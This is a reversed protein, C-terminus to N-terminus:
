NTGPSVLEGKNNVCTALGDYGYSDLEECTPIVIRVPQRDSVSRRGLAVGWLYAVTILCVCFVLAKTYDKM